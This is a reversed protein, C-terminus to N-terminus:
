EHERRDRIDCLRARVAAEGDRAAGVVACSRAFGAVAHEVGALDVRRLHDADRVEQGRALGDGAVDVAVTGRREHVRAEITVRVIGEGIGTAGGSVIVPMGKLSPYTAYEFM